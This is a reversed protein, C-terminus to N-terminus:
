CANGKIFDPWTSEHQWPVLKANRTDFHECIYQIMGWSWNLPIWIMSHMWIDLAREAFDRPSPFMLPIIHTYIYYIHLGLCFNCLSVYHESSIVIGLHPQFGLVEKLLPTNKIWRYCRWRGSELNGFYIHVLALYYWLLKAKRRSAFTVEIRCIAMGEAFLCVLPVPGRGPHIGRATVSWPGSAGLFLTWWTLVFWVFWQFHSFHIGGLTGWSKLPRSFCLLHFWLCSSFCWCRLAQCNFVSIAVYECIGFCLKAAKVWGLYVKVQFRVATWQANHIWKPIVFPRLQYMKFFCRVNAVIWKPAISPKLWIKILKFGIEWWHKRNGIQPWHYGVRTGRHWTFCELREGSHHVWSKKGVNNTWTELGLFHHKRELNRWYIPTERLLKREHCNLWTKTSVRTETSCKAVTLRICKLSLLGYTGHPFSHHM